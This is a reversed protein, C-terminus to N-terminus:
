KLNNNIIIILGLNRSNGSIVNMFIKNSNTIFQLFLYILIEKQEQLFRVSALESKLDEDSFRSFDLM